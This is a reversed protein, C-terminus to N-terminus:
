GGGGGAAPRKANTNYTFFDQNVLQVFLDGGPFDDEFQVGFEFFDGAVLCADAGVETVTEVGVIAAQL